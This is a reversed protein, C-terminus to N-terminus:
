RFIFPPLTALAIMVVDNPSAVVAADGTEEM